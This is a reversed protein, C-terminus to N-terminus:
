GGKAPQQFVYRAPRSQPHPACAYSYFAEGAGREVKLGKAGGSMNQGADFEYVYRQSSLRGLTVIKM